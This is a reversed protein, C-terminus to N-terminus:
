TREELWHIFTELSLAGSIRDKEQGEFFLILTPISRVRYAESAQSYKETNLKVFVARESLRLAAQQFTPAFAKCPGCWAAWFDCVVPIPSKEILSQLGSKSVESVGFHIPLNAQCHGCIPAKTQADTLNVRNVKGCSACVSYTVSM